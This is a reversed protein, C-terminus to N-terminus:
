LALQPCPSPLEIDASAWAAKARAQYKAADSTRGLATAAAAAGALSWGNEVFMMLDAEFVALAKTANGAPVPANLLAWGLCQRPPYYWCPPETYINFDDAVVMAQLAAIAAPYDREIRWARVARLENPVHATVNFLNGASVAGPAAGIATKAAADALEILTANPPQVGRKAPAALGYLALARALGFGAKHYAVFFSGDPGWAGPTTSSPVPENLVEAWRGFRALTLVTLPSGPGACDICSMAGGPTPMLGAAPDAAERAYSIAVSSMGALRANAVLMKLNHGFAYPVLCDKVYRRNNAIAVKSTAVGASYLGTRLFLHAPMHTLHGAGPVLEVATSPDYLMKTPELAEWRYGAPASSPELLHITLHIALVHPSGPTANCASLLKQKAPILEPKLPYIV